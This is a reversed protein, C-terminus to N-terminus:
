QWKLAQSIPLPRVIFGKRRLSELLGCNYKLHLLGVALFCNKQTLLAPLKEMWVRNRDTVLIDDECDSGLEYDIEFRLYQEVTHCEEYSDEEGSLKSIWFSIEQCVQETGWSTEIENLIDLQQTDTELGVLYRNNKRAIDILYNDFHDWKDTPKVTKCKSVEFERRLTILIEVPRLQFVSTKWEKSITILKNYDEENFLKSLDTQEKRKQLIETLHAEEDISEFIAAEANLLATKIIPLSDVFSNGIHHYTGVIVSRKNTEPHIVEWIITNQAFCINSFLLLSLLIKM